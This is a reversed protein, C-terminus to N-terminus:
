TPENDLSHRPSPHQSPHRTVPLPLPVSSHHQSFDGTLLQPADPYSSPSQLLYSAMNATASYHSPPQPKWKSSLPSLSPNTMMKMMTLYTSRPTRAQNVAYNPANAIAVPCLLPPMNIVTKAVNPTLYHRLLVLM